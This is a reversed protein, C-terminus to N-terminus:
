RSPPIPDASSTSEPTWAVQIRIPQEKRRVLLGRGPPSAAARSTGLLPGEGRDGSLIIGSNGLEKIQQLVPEFLARQAGAVRRALILHFGLDRGQAVFELLGSLPNAATAVLDYDDVVVYLEPGQWWNRARLQAAPVDSGPLRKILAARVAAVADAAAPAAGAYFGLYDPQVTELLTRRYDIIGVRVAKHSHRACLGTIFTRLFTTKGSEGDGFVLFHPESGTLDLYLPSLDTEVVGVPVGRGHDAGPAPLQHANVVTPLLRVPPATPGSWSSAVRAVLDEVGAQFDLANTKGDIRPVATQFHLKEPTLGRGPAAVPVNSAVKRDISSEATETLRLELIGGLSDRLNARIDMWRNVTVIVHIGYGLGRAALDLVSEEIDEFTRRLAPWNDIVLFVDALQEEPLSGAQRLARLSVASDIGRARFLEERRALIGDVEAILRRVKDPELRSAVSGVHPLGELTALGGGGYDICYFQVETPTHTLAFATVVTRLLTSKGTQPAGVVVLNGGSGAADIEVLGRRQEAPRDVLGIPVVLRGVGHWGTAVLGRQSEVALGPLLQDLTTVPELPPLWVQHVRPADALRRVVVDLVSRRSSAGPEVSPERGDPAAYPMSILAGKFRTFTTMDVKLYGVGPESPLEYADPVGLVARSDQASFTRLGVRYRIHSELGRLRGEELRQSSLLLHMGLSRGLRGISVFLDIFDPKATLLEAFEDVIILLSPLPKLDVGTARLQQYEHVSGLGGAARLLEQRRRQEGFLADHMRDVLSLDNELNTIVGAVHPLDAVGSFTAGGKYDVLVFSLQEPAHTIALAGVLTRLFESKGSGTAGVVLGHPGMGGLASEKLDLHLPQGELTVGVPVRLQATTAPRWFTGAEITGVDNIGLLSPLEVTELPVESPADGSWLRRPWRLGSAAFAADVAAVFRAFEATQNAAADKSAADERRWREALFRFPRVDVATDPMSTVGRIQAAQFAVLKSAGFRAFGRGPRGPPVTAAVDTGIVNISDAETQTRLALRLNIKTNTIFANVASSLRQTALLLHVGLGGGRQAIDALGGVFKGLEAAMEFDDVVILLRPLWDLGRDPDLALSLYENLDTAGAARLARERRRVEAELIQLAREGVQEDLDSILGVAHPLRACQDLARSGRCDVLLVNVHDPDLAAALGAIVTRLLESKGSGTAGVVLGHQGDAVLDVRLVGDTSVGIPTILASQGAQRRWRTAVSQPDLLDTELLTVLSVANVLGAGTEMMEPDEFRTLARAWRLAVLKGVGAILFQEIVEGQAPQSLRANGDAGVLEIVTTCMAPLRHRAQSVILGATPGGEGRLVARAPANPGETLSEADLVVLTVPGPPETARPGDAGKGTALLDRLLANGAEAGCALRRDADASTTDATHPLWKAWEWDEVRGSDTIIVVRLDAPGSLTTAQLLLSRALALAAPRDGVVGVVCGAALDVPVPVERLIGGVALAEDVQAPHKGSGGTVTPLWTLTGTGGHLQLFDDHHPRREWLRTSPACAWRLLEAPHPMTKRRRDTEAQVRVELAARFEILEAAFQRNGTSTAQRARRRSELWTGIAMVPSLVAFLAYILQGIYAVMFGAFLLPAIIAVISLPMRAPVPPVAAPADLPETERPSASRPPRNLPVTGAGRRPNAAPLCDDAPPRVVSILVAGLRLTAGVSVPHSKHVAMDDVWTGNRSDLDDVTVQGSDSVHVRCHRSSVTSHDIVVDNTPSRGVNATGGRVLPWSPGAVVGGIIALALDFRYGPPLGPAAAVSAAEPLRVVAGQHLDAQALPLRAPVPRGSIVLVSNHGNASAGLAAALDGVTAQPQRVAVEVELEGAASQVVVQVV